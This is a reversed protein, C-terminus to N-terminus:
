LTMHHSKLWYFQKDSAYEKGSVSYQHPSNDDSDCEEMVVAKSKITGTSTGSVSSPIIDSGSGGLHKPRKGSLSEDEFDEDESDKRRRRVSKPPKSKTLSQQKRRIEPDLDQSFM